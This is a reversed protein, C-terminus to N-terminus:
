QSRLSAIWRADPAEDRLRDEPRGEAPGTPEECHRHLSELTMQVHRRYAVAGLYAQQVGPDQLLAPAPAPSCSAATRSCTRRTPWPSRPPSTRSSWSSRSATPARARARDRVRRARDDAGPRAIARRVHDPDPPGDPLPRDRADAARRGVAHRCTPGATGIIEPVAGSGPGDVARAPAPRAPDGRGDRSERAGDHDSLGPSRPSRASASIASEIAPCAPHHRPRRVAGCRAGASPHRRDRSILSTKGAGNAGIIATLSREAVAFGVDDLAQADGYFLDLHEVALM